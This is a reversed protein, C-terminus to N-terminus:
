TATTCSGPLSFAVASSKAVLVIESKWHGRMTTRFLDCRHTRRVLRNKLKALPRTSFSRRAERDNGLAWTGAEAKSTAQEACRAHAMAVVFFVLIGTASKHQCVTQQILCLGDQILLHRRLQSKKNLITMTPPTPTPSGAECM